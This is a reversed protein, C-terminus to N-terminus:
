PDLPQTLKANTRCERALRATSAGAQCCALVLEAKATEDYVARGDRKRGVVLWAALDSYQRDDREWPTSSLPFM